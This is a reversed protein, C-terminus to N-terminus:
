NDLVAAGSGYGREVLLKRLLVLLVALGPVAVLLGM